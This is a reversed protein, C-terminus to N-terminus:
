KGDLGNQALFESLLDAVKDNDMDAFPIHTSGTLGKDQVLMVVEAHGGYKNILAACQRSNRVSPDAETRDGWVFQIPFKTLKVFDELPVHVPGFGGTGAAPCETPVVCGEPYIYGISEYTVMGKVNDTKTKTSTIQARFGGASNTLFVIPGIKDVAQAAADTELFVNALIDFEEYRARTAQEWAPNEWPPLNTNPFQVGPRYNPWSGILWAAFNSQDRGIGGNPAGGANGNVYSVCGWNARGVRPGDWLYVPYDRRLFISQFGEGGDWRNQWVAVHSSHWMFLGVKRPKEPIFYEVNGHDCHISSTEPDGKVTGGVRFSGM